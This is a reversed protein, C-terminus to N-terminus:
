QAQKGLAWAGFFPLWQLSFGARRLVVLTAEAQRLYLFGMSLLSAETCDSIVLNIDLFFITPHTNCLWAELVSGGGGSHSFYIEM